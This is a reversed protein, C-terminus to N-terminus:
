SLFYALFIRDRIKPTFKGELEKIRKLYRDCDGLLADVTDRYDDREQTVEAL